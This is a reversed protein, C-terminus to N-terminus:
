RVLARLAPVPSLRRLRREWLPATFFREHEPGLHGQRRMWKLSAMTYAGNNRVTFLDTNPPLGTRLQGDYRHLYRSPVLYSLADASTVHGWNGSHANNALRLQVRQEIQFRSRFQLHQVLLYEKALRLCLHRSKVLEETLPSSLSHRFLRPEGYNILYHTLQTLASRNPDFLRDGDEPTLYFQACGHEIADYGQADARAALEIPNSAFIEDADLVHVWDGERLDAAAEAILRYKLADSYQESRCDFVLTRGSYRQAVAATNDSSGNDFFYIREYCGWNLLSEIVQGIIDGENKAILFGFLRMDFYGDLEELQRALRRLMARVM